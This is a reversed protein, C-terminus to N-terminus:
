RNRTVIVRQRDRAVCVGGQVIYVDVYHNGWYATSEHWSTGGSFIQGRPCNAATAEAGYNRVKWYVEYDGSITCDQISFDITRGKAVRDGRKPLDYARQVGRQRVRGVLRVTGALQQRIGVDSLSQDTAARLSATRSAAVLAAEKFDTGFIDQWLALSDADDADLAARAKLAYYQIWKAFNEYGPEDWREKFDQGSMAPDPISPLTPYLKVYAALDELVHVFTTPVDAYYTDRSWPLDQVVNGVLISLIVSKVSFTTKYDRLYKLLRIADPLHDNTLRYRGELWETFQEPYATQFSGNGDFGDKNNTIAKRPEVYPVIDVHFDGAYDVCVCRTRKHTKGKYYQSAELAKKLESTYQAPTWDTQEQLVLLVDADYEKNGVPKIITRHAYSGQPTVDVFIDAFAEHTRLYSTIAEVREDLTAIRDPNLNVKNELFAAFQDVLTM